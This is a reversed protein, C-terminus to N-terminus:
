IYAILITDAFPHNNKLQRIKFTYWLWRSDILPKIEFFDKWTHYISILLVPKFKRITQETGIISEYEFWEIDWKIIWPSISYKNVINDINDIHIKYDWETKSLHSWAGSKQLYFSDKKLWAWINLPIIKWSKNNRNITDELKKFNENDPELCFIRNIHLENDFMLASDGVFAGCDIIDKWKTYEAIWPVDNIWHKHYLVTDDYYWSPFKMTNSKLYKNIEKTINHNKDIKRSKIIKNRNWIIDHMSEVINIVSSKSKDDMWYVLNEIFESEWPTNLHSKFKMAWNYMGDDVFFVKNDFLWSKILSFNMKKLWLFFTDTNKVWM